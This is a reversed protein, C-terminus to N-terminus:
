PKSRDRTVFFDPAEIQIRPRHRQGQRPYPARVAVGPAITVWQDEDVDYTVGNARISFDSASHVEVVSVELEGVKFTMGKSLSITLPM